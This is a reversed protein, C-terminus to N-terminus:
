CTQEADKELRQMGTLVADLTQAAQGPVAM